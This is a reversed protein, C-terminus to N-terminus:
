LGIFCRGCGDKLKASVESKHGHLLVAIECIADCNSLFDEVLEEIIINSVEQESEWSICLGFFAIREPGSWFSSGSLLDEISSVRKM